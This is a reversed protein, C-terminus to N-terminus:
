GLLKAMKAELSDTTVIAVPSGAEAGEHSIRERRGYQDPKTRELFWAAAQWNTGMASNIQHLARVEASARARLVQAAFVVYPWEDVKFPKPRNAWMYEPSARDMPAGAANVQRPDKGDFQEMHADADHGRMANVRDMEIEGRRRWDDFTSRGIGAFECATGVYNGAVLVTVINKLRTLTLKTSIGPKAGERKYAM